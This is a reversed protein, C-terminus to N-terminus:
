WYEITREIIYYGTEEVAKTWNGNNDHNSYIVTSYGTTKKTLYGNNDFFYTEGWRQTIRNKEDYKLEIEYGYHLNIEILNNKEDYRCNIYYGDEGDEGDLRIETINGNKDFQTSRAVCYVDSEYYCVMNNFQGNSEYNFKFKYKLSGTKDYHTREIKNGKDDYKYFYKSQVQNYEDYIVIDSIRGDKNYNILSNGFPYIAASNILHIPPLESLPKDDFKGDNGDQRKGKIVEGFKNEAYYVIERVSKVNGRLNAIRLDNMATKNNNALLFYLVTCLAILFVAGLVWLLSNKKKPLHSQRQKLEAGCNKCFQASDENQFNCKKCNM